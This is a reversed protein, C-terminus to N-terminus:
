RENTGVVALGLDVDDTGDLRLLDDRLPQWGGALAAFALDEAPPLDELFVFAAGAIFRPLADRGYRGPGRTTRRAELVQRLTTQEGCVSKWRTEVQRARQPDASRSIESVLAYAGLDGEPQYSTWVVRARTSREAHQRALSAGGRTAIVEYDVDATVIRERAVVEIPVDEWRVVERGDPAKHVVRRAITERFLHLRTEANVGGISGYVVREAGAGRGLRVADERSLGHLQAVTMEAEVAEGGLIRTFSAAPPTIHRALDDRWAAAL